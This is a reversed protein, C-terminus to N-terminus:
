PRYEVLQYIPAMTQAEGFPGLSYVEEYHDGEAEDFYPNDPNLVYNYGPVIYGVYDEALGALIPYEVGPNALMLDRLYPGPPATALDASNPKSADIIPWGWSWSGDFGGVWSEPHLEGPATILALPGVQLYTARMPMWPANDPGLPENPDYGVLPHHGLVGIAFATQFALNDIRAHYVASRVSLPLETVTEGEDTLVELARRGVNRGIIEDKLHDEGTYGTGDPLQPATNRISGIQGGLAGQVFVTVGGLGPLDRELQYLDGTVLGEETTRRMWHPWHATIAPPDDSFTAAEPHNAWNVLTGITTTPADARVFRAITLNPDYIKPDRIDQNWRPTGAVLDAPDDILETRAIIMQAPVASALADHVAQAAAAHLATMLEPNRGSTFPTEGWLGISDPADHAHTAGVIVHDLGDAALIPHHRIAEVDELLLGIADVYVIAVSVDGEVFALARAEVDNNVEFAPRSGGFLWFADFEGDGDADVFPEDRDWENDGNTDTWTETITPTYPVAAAGVSLEGDGTTACGPDGPCVLAPETWGELQADPAPGADPTVPADDGGCAAFLVLATLLSARM